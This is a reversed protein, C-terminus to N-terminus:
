RRTATYSRRRPRRFEAEAPVELGIRIVGGGAAPQLAGGNALTSVDAGECQIRRQHPLDSRPRAVRHVTTCGEPTITWGQAPRHCTFCVRGNTGLEAFFPNQPRVFRQDHVDSTSRLSGAFCDRGGFRQRRRASRTDYPDRVRRWRELSPSPWSVSALCSVEELRDRYGRKGEAHTVVVGM